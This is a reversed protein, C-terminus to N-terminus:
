FDIHLRLSPVLVPGRDRNYGPNNIHQLDFAGFVGRWVHVTYYWEVIKERGYNLKGDGLTFGKGGLALYERHDGSIGNSIFTVGARDFKRKWETGGVGGGFAVTQDVEDYAFSETRGNNWGFRGYLTLWSNLSQQVNTGFGYKAKVQAPHATIDPVPQKGALFDSTAQRYIGMNAHNVYSLVRIVGARHPLLGHRLEAEFNEAHARSLNWQLVNGNAVTPMLAEAARLGWDRDEYEVMAGYTYGRTDAAYDWAGNNDSTWNMFQLHSDSGVDNADFFDALSFKGFRLELRREPLTTALAFPGREAAVTKGSLAIVKRVMLRSFYPNSLRATTIRVVDLNTFGGLGVGRSLGHGGAIEADAYVELTPTIAYGLYVTFMRSTAQESNAQLSNPGQYPSRFAPHFQTIFNIQGSIWWKGTEPHHLVTANLADSDDAQETPPSASSSPPPAQGPAQAGAPKPCVLLILGAAALQLWLELARAM